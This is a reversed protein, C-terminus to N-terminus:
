VTFEHPGDKTSVGDVKIEITIKTAGKKSPDLGALNVLFSTENLSYVKASISTQDQSYVNVNQELTSAMQLMKARTGDSPTKPEEKEKEIKPKAKPTSTKQPSEANKKPSKDQSVRGRPSKPTAAKIKKPSDKSSHESSAHESSSTYDTGTSESSGGTTSEEGSHKKASKGKGEKKTAVKEPKEKSKEKTSKDTKDKTESKEKEKASENRKKTNTKPKPKGEIKGKGNGNKAKKGDTAKDGKGDVSNSRARKQKATAETGKLTAPMSQRNLKKSEKQRIFIALCAIVLVFNRREGRAIEIKGNATGVTNGSGECRYVAFVVGSENGRQLKFSTDAENFVVNISDSGYKSNNMMKLTYSLETPKPVNM